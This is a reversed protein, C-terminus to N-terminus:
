PSAVNKSKKFTLSPKFQQLLIGAVIFVLGVVTSPHIPEGVFIRIFFLAMFPSLFILSSVKATHSSNKLALLWLVFTIGMEFVGIYASGLLAPRTPLTIKSFLVLYLTIYAGGFVMNMFIKLLSDRKDKLNIIWYLAWLVASGLALAVGRPNSFKMAFVQGKTSIILLGFFSIFIAVFGKWGIHQGLFPVSLIVLVVPWSYNLVGAEQAQLLEYAKFLVLYYAFPNIFGLIASMIIDKHSQKLLQRHGRRMWLIFGLVFVAFVASWYLLQDYPIHRLTLKFASSMTSWFLVAILAFLYAKKQPKMAAFTSCNHIPQAGPQMEFIPLISTTKSPIM